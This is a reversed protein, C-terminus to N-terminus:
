EKGQHRENAKAAKVLQAFLGTGSALETPKGSEVLVGDALVLLHDCDMITTVRHAIVIMSREMSSKPGKVVERLTDQIITDTLRCELRKSLPRLSCRGWCSANGSRM